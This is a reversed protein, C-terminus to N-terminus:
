LRGLFKNYLSRSRKLEDSWKIQPDTNERGGNNLLFINTNEMISNRNTAQSSHIHESIEYRM